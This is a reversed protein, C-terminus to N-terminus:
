KNNYTSADSERFVMNNKIEEALKETVSKEKITGVNTVLEKYEVSGDESYVGEVGRLGNSVQDKLKVTFTTGKYDTTHILSGEEIIGYMKGNAVRGGTYPIEISDKNKVVTHGVNVLNPNAKLKELQKERAIEDQYTNEIEKFKVKLREKAVEDGYKRILLLEKHIERAEEINILSSGDEKVELAKYMISDETFGREKMLERIKPYYEKRVENTNVQKEGLWTTESIGKTKEITEFMKNQEEIIGERRSVDRDIDDSKDNLCANISSYKGEGKLKACQDYWGGKERMVEQRAIAKGGTNLYLNKVTLFAGVGLCSAKLGKVVNGLKESREEWKKITENLSAIKERTKEPSLHIDRKDIGVKFGFSTETGANDISPIVSVKASKKLNVKALTFVYGSGFSTPVKDNLKSRTSTIAQKLGDLYGEPRLNMNLVAYSDDLDVLQIFENTRSVTGGADSIYKKGVSLDKGVLSNISSKYPEYVGCDVATSALVDGGEGKCFKAEFESVKTPKSNLDNTFYWQDTYIFYISWSAGTKYVSFLTEKRFDDLYVLQDKTLTYTKSNGDPGKVLIDASYDDASPEYIGELSIQKIRGNISIDRSSISSSALKSKDQCFSSLTKKSEPYKEKFQNCWDIITKKQGLAFGLEIKKSLAEEGYSVDSDPIKESAFSEIITDYDKIANKYYTKIDTPSTSTSTESVVMGSIVNGSISKKDQLIDEIENLNKEGVNFSGEIGFEEKGKIEELERETLIESAGLEDVFNRIDKNSSYTSEGKYKVILETIGQLALDIKQLDVKEKDRDKCGSPFEYDCSKGLLKGVEACEQAGCLNAVGDGCNSCEKANLIVEVEDNGFGKKALYVRYNGIVLEDSVGETKEGNEKLVKEARSAIDTRQTNIDPKKDGAGSSSGLKELDVDVPEAFGIIKVQKTLVCEEAQSSSVIKVEDGKITYAGIRLGSSVLKGFATQLINFAVVGGKDPNFFTLRVHRAMADIEDDSLKASQTTKAYLVAYLVDQNNEKKSEVYGLYVFKGDGDTAQYLLDGVTHTETRCNVPQNIGSQAELNFYKIPPNYDCITLNVRPSIMLNFTSSGSFFGSSEDEKCKITVKENVGQKTIEKVQCRNELFWEEDGVEVTEGNINLKARTDPNEFSDLKLQLKALCDDLTPLSIKGSTEGKKLEVSAVKRDKDYVSIVAGENDISEARLYGKKEWFSYQPKNNTFEADTMEPLYFSARGIGFANNIDYKIKATLNGTVFDPMSSENDNKKLVIVAYGINNLIPSNLDGKVGLAARAPHFGVGSVERPYQGSFSISEIADVEILPNIKTAALQCFIPINQEELLDSRVVAPTCGFPAIQILFDEGAECTQKDLYYSSSDVFSAGSGSYYNTRMYSAASLFSMVLLIGLLFIMAGKSWSKPYVPRLVENNKKNIM